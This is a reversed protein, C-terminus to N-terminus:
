ETGDDAGKKVIWLERQPNTRSICLKLGQLRSDELEKRVSYLLQSTARTDLTPFAFATPSVLGRYWLWIAQERTYESM